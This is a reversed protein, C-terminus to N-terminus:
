KERRYNGVFSVNLGGCGDEELVTLGQADLALTAFCGDLDFIAKAGKLTGIGDIEGTHVQGGAANPGQWLASGSAYIRNGSLGILTISAPHIDKRDNIYRVYHGTWRATPEQRSAVNKLIAIREAFQAQWCAADKCSTVEYSKLWDRQWRRIAEKNGSREAASKYTANLEDDLASLKMDSCIAKEMPTRAKNCDFSAAQAISASILGLLTLTAVPFHRHFM